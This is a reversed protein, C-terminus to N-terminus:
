PSHFPPDNIAKNISDKLHYNINRHKEGTLLSASYLSNGTLKNTFAIVAKSKDLDAERRYNVIEDALKEFCKQTNSKLLNTFEQSKKLGLNLYFEPMEMNILFQKGFYTSNLYKKRKKLLEHEESVEQIYLSIDQKSIDTNKM